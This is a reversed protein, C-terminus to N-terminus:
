PIDLTAIYMALMLLFSSYDHAPVSLALPPSMKRGSAIM